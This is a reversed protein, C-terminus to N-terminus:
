DKKHIYFVGVPELEHTTQNNHFITYKKDKGKSIKYEKAGRMHTLMDREYQSTKMNMLKSFEESSLNITNGLKMVAKVKRGDSTKGLVLEKTEPEPKSEPKNEESDENELIFQAFDKIMAKYHIEQVIYRDRIYLCFLFM